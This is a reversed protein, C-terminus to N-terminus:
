SNFTRKCRNAVCLSEFFDNTQADSRTCYRLGATSEAIGAILRAIYDVVINVARVIRRHRQRPLFASKTSHVIATLCARLVIGVWEGRIRRLLALWQPKYDCVCLKVHRFFPPQPSWSPLVLRIQPCQGVM